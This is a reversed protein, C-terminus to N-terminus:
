KQIKEAADSVASKLRPDDLVAVAQAQIKEAETKNGTAVLIEILLRVRGVFRDTAFEKLRPSNDPPSYRPANTLGRARSYEAVRQLTQQQIEAVRAQSQLEITYGNRTTDFRLQPDGMYKRCTEYEGRQTLLDEVVFYCQGALQSNKEEITKFLKATMEAQDLSGNISGLEQFLDFSGRGESFERADADRIQILAEKAPPFKRSLEIWDCLLPIAFAGPKVQEHVAICRQLAEDYRRAEMLEGIQRHADFSTDDLASSNPQSVPLGTAPDITGPLSPPSGPLGSTPNVRQANAPQLFAPSCLLAAALLFATSESKAPQIKM